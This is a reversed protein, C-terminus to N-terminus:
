GDPRLCGEISVFDEKFLESGVFTYLKVNLRVEVGEFRTTM